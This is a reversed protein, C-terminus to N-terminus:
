KELRGIIAILNDRVRQAGELQNTWGHEQCQTIYEEIGKLHEKHIDLFEPSTQFYPCGDLCANCHPCKGMTVPLTCM